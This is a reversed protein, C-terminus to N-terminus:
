YDPTREGVLEKLMAQMEGMSIDLQEVVRGYLMLSPVGRGGLEKQAQHLCTLIVRQTHTLGDRADPIDPYNNM